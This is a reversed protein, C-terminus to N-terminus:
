KIVETLRCGGEIFKQTMRVTYHTFMCIHSTSNCQLYFQVVTQIATQSAIPLLNMGVGLSPFYLDIVCPKLLCALKGLQTPATSPLSIRM